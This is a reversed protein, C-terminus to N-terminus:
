APPAVVCAQGRQAMRKCIDRAEEEGFLGLRARYLTHGNLSAFPVVL